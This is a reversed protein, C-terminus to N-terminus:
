NKTQNAQHPSIPEDSVIVTALVTTPKRFRKVEISRLHVSKFTNTKKKLIREISTSLMNELILKRMSIALPIVLLIVATASFLLGNKAQKAPTYGKFFFIVTGAFTIGILNTM